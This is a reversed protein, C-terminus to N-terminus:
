MNERKEIEKKINELKEELEKKTNQYNEIINKPAKLNFETNELKNKTQILQLELKEFNKKLNILEFDKDMIKNTLVYIKAYNNVIIVSNEVINDEQMFFIEKLMALKCIVHKNKELFNHKTQIYVSIDQNQLIKQERRFNRISKIVSILIEIKKNSETNKVFKSYYKPYESLAISKGEHPLSQWLEETIFPIFPHLLQLLGSITWVLMNRTSEALPEDNKKLNIKAFEIYWDCFDNWTFDYLKQAALGFEFNELNEIVEKTLNNFKFILWEDFLTLKKPIENKVEKQDINMLIFRGANWIKNIFNRGSSLKEDFFKIDNGPTNGILLSFRLSDAGYTKIVEVPDIGNALSKSMKQGQADRVLGHVLVTNFPKIGLCTISSFIMKAVWFFIIDYGTVLTNTPFFYDLEPTSNPWGLVSFPWLASSFWTDFIDEDQYINKSDCKECKKVFLKSVTIEGCDKCHWAPIRHGWWLQRSICWDKINELWHFYIKSFREPVFKTDGNKVCKIAAKAMLDMKVFWQTSIRPEVISSCRYCTGINNKIQETKVIFDKSQLDKVIIGRAEFRDINNYVGANENMIGNKDITNIIELNHRLGIEFDDMSHAPTVKLAGTGLNKEIANDTIVSIERNVLPVVVKKGVLHKYREDDPNVAIATDGFITEPRTTAVPIFGSGDALVYKIHWFTSDHEKFNVESDSITTCCKPCWNLIKEGRYVLGKEYLNVFFETVAQSCGEDLTFREREWDCSAGLQKIQSIIIGGYKAKWEWARSLFNDRGLTEKNTGIKKIEAVIKTETAISAHDTGPIWLAEYGQMRKFRILIDQLTLDLAHGIHLHGTINPPPMVITYPKKKNNIKASFIKNKEWFKYQKQEVKKADYLKEQNVEM